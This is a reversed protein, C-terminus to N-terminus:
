EGPFLGSTHRCLKQVNEIVAAGAVASYKILPRQLIKRVQLLVTAGALLGYAQWDGSLAFDVDWTSASTTSEVRFCMM